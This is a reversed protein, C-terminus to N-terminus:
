AMQVEFPTTDQYEVAREFSIGVRWGHNMYQIGSSDKIEWDRYEMIKQELYHFGDLYDIFTEIFTRAEM